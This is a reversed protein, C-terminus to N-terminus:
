NVTKIFQSKTSYKEPPANYLSTFLNECYEVANDPSSLDYSWSVPEILVQEDGALYRDLSLVSKDAILVAAVLENGTPLSVEMPLTCFPKGSVLPRNEERTQPFLLYMGESNVSLLMSYAERGSSLCLEITEGVTFMGYSGGKITITTAYEDEIPKLLEMSRIVNFCYYRKIINELASFLQNEDTFYYSEQYTEIKDDGYVNDHMTLSIGEYNVNLDVLLDCSGHDISIALGTQDLRVKVSYLMESQNGTNDVVGTKLAFIRRVDSQSSIRQPNRLEGLIENNREAASRLVPLPLPPKESTQVLPEPIVPKEDVEPPKLPVPSPEGKLPQPEEKPKVIAPPEQRKSQVPPPEEVTPKFFIINIYNKLNDIQWIFLVVLLATGLFGVIVAINKKQRPASEKGKQPGLYAREADELAMILDNAAPYRESRDEALCRLIIKEYRPPVFPLRAPLPHPPLKGTIMLYFVVGLSYIDSRGDIDKRSQSQEPSMYDLTGPTWRVRTIDSGESSKAIGFDTVKVANDERIMINSPKIDRHIIGKKHAHDLASAVRIAIRAAEKLEYPGEKKIREAVTKGPVYEMILYIADDRKERDHIYVICPHTFKALIQAENEIRELYERDHALELPLTKIAVPMNLDRHKGRYVIGMGGRGIEELIQYKGILTEEM